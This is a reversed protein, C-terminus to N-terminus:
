GEIEKGSDGEKLTYAREPSVGWNQLDNWSM